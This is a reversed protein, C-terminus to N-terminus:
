GMSESPLHWRESLASRLLICSSESWASCPSRLEKSCILLPKTRELDHCLALAFLVAVFLIQLTEGKIFPDLFTSPVINLLSGTLSPPPSANVFDAVAMPDFAQPDANINSGVPWLNGVALGVLLALTSIVEFYVLARVGLRAIQRLDGTKAVGVVITTFIIPTVVIRIAKIFVDGLPKFSTAVAPDVLGIAAGLTIGVLMQVYLKRGLATFRRMPRARRRVAAVAPHPFTPHSGARPTILSRVFKVGTRIRTQLAAGKHGAAFCAAIVRVAQRLNPKFNGRNPRYVPDM